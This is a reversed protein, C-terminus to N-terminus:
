TKQPLVRKEEHAEERSQLKLKQALLMVQDKLFWLAGDNGIVYDALETKRALPLQKSIRSEAQARTIGRKELRAFQQEPTSTVCLTFDFWNELQKEFLLPVEVVWSRGPDEAFTSRWIAFLEPHLVGEVWLLEDSNAFIIGALRARDVEGHSTLVSEGYRRSLAAVVRPNTLVQGRILEDSDLREYGLASFLRATTSKGCGMGGTLGLIM